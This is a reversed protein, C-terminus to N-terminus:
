RCVPTPDAAPPIGDPNGWWGMDLNSSGTKCGCYDTSLQWAGISCGRTGAIEFNVFFAYSDASADIAYRYPANKPNEPPYAWLRKPDRPIAALYTPFNVRSITPDKAVEDELNEEYFAYGGSTSFDDVMPYREFDEYYMTFASKLTEIDSIRKADRSKKQSNSVNVIM